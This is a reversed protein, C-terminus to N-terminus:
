EVFDYPGLPDLLFFSFVCFTFSLLVWIVDAMAPFFFFFFLFYIAADDHIICAQRNGM